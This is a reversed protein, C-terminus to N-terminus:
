EARRAGSAADRRRRDRRHLRHVPRGVQAGAQACPPRAAARRDRGDGHVDPCLRVGPDDRVPLQLQDRDGQLDDDQRHRARGLFLLGRERKGGAKEFEEGSQWLTIVRTIEEKAEAQGRVDDIKVGWSADGPEYSRIGRAALFLFPGFFIGFNVFFLIPLQIFVLALQPLTSPPFIQRLGEIPHFFAANVGSFAFLLQCLVLLFLIFGIWMPLRRFKSRWYWYRRRAVIDEEKLESQRAPEGM